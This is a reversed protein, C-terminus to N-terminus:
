LLWLEIVRRLYTLFWQSDCLLCWIEPSDLTAHMSNIRIRYVLMRVRKMLIHETGYQLLHGSEAIGCTIVTPEGGIKCLLAATPEIHDRRHQFTNVGENWFWWLRSRHTNYKKSTTWVIIDCTIRPTLHTIKVKVESWSRMKGHLVTLMARRLDHTFQTMIVTKVMVVESSHNVFRKWRYRLSWKRCARSTNIYVRARLM